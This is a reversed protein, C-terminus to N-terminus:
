AYNIVSTTGALVITIVIAALLGRVEAGPLADIVFAVLLANLVLGGLGLTLVNLPLALRALAPWVLANLVGVLAAALLASGLGDLVFSALLLSLALLVVADLATVFIVRRVRM